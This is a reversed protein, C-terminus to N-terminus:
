PRCTSRGDASSRKMPEGGSAKVKPSPPSTSNGSRTPADVIRSSFAGGSSNNDAIALHRAVDLGAARVVHASPPIMALSRDDIEPYANARATLVVPQWDHELLRRVFSLTRISGSSQAFPPFHFAVMLANRSM